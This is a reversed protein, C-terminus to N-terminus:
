AEGLTYNILFHDLKTKQESTLQDFRIGYRKLTLESSTSDGIMDIDSIIKVPIEDINFDGGSLFIELLSYDNSEEPKSTCRLSLGGRGIDLLQGTNETIDQEHESWLSADTPDKAQFRKHERREILTRRDSEIRRDDNSRREPSHTDYSFNRRETVLRRDKDSRQTSV